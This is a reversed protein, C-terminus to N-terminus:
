RGLRRPAAGIAPVSVALWAVAACLALLIWFVEHGGLPKFEWRLWLSFLGFPAAVPVITLAPALVCYAAIAVRERWGSLRRMLASGAALPGYFGLWYAPVAACVVYIVLLPPRLVAEFTATEAALPNTLHYRGAYAGGVLLLSGLGFGLPALSGILARKWGAWVSQWHVQRAAQNKLRRSAFVLGGIWLAALSVGGWFWRAFVIEALGMLAASAVYYVGITLWRWLFAAKESV